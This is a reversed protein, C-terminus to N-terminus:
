RQKYINLDSNFAQYTLYIKVIFDVVVFGVFLKWDSTQYFDCKNFKIIRNM